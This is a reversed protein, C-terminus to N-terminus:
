SDGQLSINKFNIDTGADDSPQCNLEDEGLTWASGPCYCGGISGQGDPVACLHSCGGSNGDHCDVQLNCRKDGDDTDDLYYIWYLVGWNWVGTVIVRLKWVLPVEKWNTVEVRWTLVFRDTWCTMNVCLRWKLLWGRTSTVHWLSTNIRRTHFHPTRM